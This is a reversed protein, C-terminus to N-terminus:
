RSRDRASALVGEVNNARSDLIATFIQSIFIACLKKASIRIHNTIIHIQKRFDDVLVNVTKTKTRKNVPNAKHLTKLTNEWAVTYLLSMKVVKQGQKYNKLMCLILYTTQRDCRIITQKWNLSPHRRFFVGFTGLLDM